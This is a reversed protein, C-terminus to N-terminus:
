KDKVFRVPLHPPFYSVPYEGFRAYTDSPLQIIKFAVPNDRENKESTWLLCNSGEGHPNGDLVLLNGPVANFGSKNNAYGDQKLWGTSAMLQGLLRKSQVDEGDTSQLYDDFAIGQSKILKIYDAKTPVRWGAPVQISSLDAFKLFTGYHPKSGNTMGGPGAYNVSMWEQTGITVTPYYLTGIKVHTGSTPPTSYLGGTNDPPTTSGSVKRYKVSYQNGGDTRKANLYNTASTFTTAQPEVLVSFYSRLDQVKIPSERYGSYKNSFVRMKGSQAHFRLSRPAAQYELSGVIRYFYRKVEDGSNMVETTYEVASKGDNTFVMTRFEKFGQEGQFTGADWNATLPGDNNDAFWTGAMEEPISTTPTDKIIPEEENPPPTTTSPEPDDERCAGLLSTCTALLLLSNKLRLIM